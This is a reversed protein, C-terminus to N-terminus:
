RTIGTRWAIDCAKPLRGRCRPIGQLSSLTPLEINRAAEGIVELNRIVADQVLTNDLFDARHLNAVYTRIRQGAEIM